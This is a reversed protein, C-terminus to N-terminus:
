VGACKPVRWALGGARRVKAVAYNRAESYERYSLVQLQQEHLNALVNLSRIEAAWLTPPQWSDVEGGRQGIAELHRHCEDLDAQLGNIVGKREIALGINVISSLRAFDDFTSQGLRMREIAQRVPVMVAAIESADLTTSGEVAAMMTVPQTTTHARMNIDIRPRVTQLQVPAALPRFDMLAGMGVLQRAATTLLSPTM